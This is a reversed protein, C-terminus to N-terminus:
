ARSKVPSCFNFVHARENDLISLDADHTGDKSDESHRLCAEVLEKWGTEPVGNKGRFGNYYIGVQSGWFQKSFEKM